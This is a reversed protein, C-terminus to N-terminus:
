SRRGVRPRSRRFGCGGRPRPAGAARGRAWARRSACSAGRRREGRTSGQSSAGRRSGVSRVRLSESPSAARAPMSVEGEIAARWLRPPLHAVALGGAPLGDIAGRLADLSEEGKGVGLWCLRGRAAVHAFGKRRLADELERATAAALMTPGRKGTAGLELLLVSPHQHSLTVAVAAAIALGGKAEGLTTALVLHRGAPQSGVLAPERADTPAANM